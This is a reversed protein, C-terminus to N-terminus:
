LMAVALQLSNNSTLKLNELCFLQSSRLDRDVVCVRICLSLLQVNRSEIM